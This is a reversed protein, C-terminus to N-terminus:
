ISLVSELTAEILHKTEETLEHQRQLSAINSKLTSISDVKEGITERLTIAEDRLVAVDTHSSEQVCLIFSHAYYVYM